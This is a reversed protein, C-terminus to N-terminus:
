SPFIEDEQFSRMSERLGRVAVSTGSIVSSRVHSNLNRKRPARVFHCQDPSAGPEKASERSRSSNGGEINMKMFDFQRSDLRKLSMMPTKMLCYNRITAHCFLLLRPARVPLAAGVLDRRFFPAEQDIPYQPQSLTRAPFRIDNLAQCREQPEIM